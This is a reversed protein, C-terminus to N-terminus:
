ASKKAVFEYINEIDLDGIIFLGMNNPNYFQNFCKTLMPADIQYIDDKTGAIDQNIPHQPYMGQLLNLYGVWQPDDRYMEIEQAIIGQEKKINQESFYPNQVFDLLLELGKYFNSTASFYYCTHSHTTFANVSIGLQSFKEEVNGDPNEFLKHELFHAIGPKLELFDTKYDIGGFNTAFVAFSKKYNPRPIYFVDLGNPMKFSYVEESISSYEFSNLM